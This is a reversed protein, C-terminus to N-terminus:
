RGLGAPVIGRLESDSVWEINSIPSWVLQESTEPGGKYASQYALIRVSRESTSMAEKQLASAVFGGAGPRTGFNRGYIRVRSGGAPSPMSSPEGIDAEFTSVSPTAYSALASRTVQDGASVAVPLDRGHGAPFRVLIEDHDASVTALASAPGSASDPKCTEISAHLGISIRPCPGFNSGGIRLVATGDTAM